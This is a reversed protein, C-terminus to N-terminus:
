RAWLNTVLQSGAVGIPILVGTLVLMESPSHHRLTEVVLILAALLLLALSIGRHFRRIESTLWSDIRREVQRGDNSDTCAPKAPCANCIHAPARYRVIRRQHDTEHRRLERGTPCEWLDLDPRYRFGTVEYLQSRQHSHRAVAEFGVALLVLFIAYGAILAAELSVGHIM